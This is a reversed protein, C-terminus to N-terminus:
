LSNSELYDRLIVAAAIQHEKNRRKKLKSNNEILIDVAIKSSYNEDYLEVPVDVVNDLKKAFVEIVNAIKGEPIGVICKDINYDICLQSIKNITKSESVNLIQTLPEVLIGGESIAIGIHKVGYDICIYNM